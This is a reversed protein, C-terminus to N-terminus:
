FDFGFLVGFYFRWEKGYTVDVGRFKKTFEDLGYAANFFICTPFAYFSFAQLRLEAGIDKKFDNLSLKGNWANGYDGFIGFYLKDLYLPSIRTDIKTLIPFRYTLNGTLVRGGGLAYFPYGKMGPLGTAYFDYFDDVKPGFISAGRIKLSVTHTNNFLGISELWEADLKHLRNTTFITILNGDNTVEFQPNIKSIEYDYKIKIKRGIPNIELNRTAYYSEYLYSLSFTNAKFYDESSARIPIGSSPILFADIASAYKSFSYNFKFDHYFNFLKFSMGLDFELLDYTVGVNITDLGAILQGSSQRSINYGEISFKPSFSLKKSFFDKLFPVGNNYNFQFFLDREGKRNINAGGFISVRDMLEDSYFYFGPKIADLVNNDKTYNDYRIVPFFAINTFISTYPKEKFEPIKKDDFNKLSNWNYNNKSELSTSDTDAYKQILKDPRKYDAETNIAIEKFDKLMAIKYGTSKYTAYVLNGKVDVNPMFAGGVVNTIQKIEKSQLDYSYINFIGTRDSSFYLKKFDKSFVPSRTDQYSNDFLTQIDRSKIDLVSIKRSKEFSYDFYIKSGDDNFVPNYVEEGNNFKTLATREKGESDSIYLNLTGDRSVIFCISKGDPSYSPSTARFKETLRREKKTSFNYEYLDYLIIDDFSPPINRKSYIIRKGDPSWSFNSGVPFAIPEKKKTEMNYIFLGTSSFDYEQNSLFAIKKNDPSIHPYYNAFGINEIIEGDIINSKVNKLNENYENRLYTKWNNYLDIGDIGLNKRLSADMSFNTLDGLSVSIEKLKDEGYTRSIYRVFAFGSNYISEAKLSTISSFQGMENYSLMNNDMVYSRLIMDRHSDWNDYDLQQRQYQATGEAFWAPVGVGSIPYSVIVNPYGYLVDPRREKEYNLWQLYIAPVKTSLKMSAQIQIMHTFEHTIVNRLWNHTGRLDYDLPSAFISIRNNFFDTAGNSVDSVDTIIFNVKDKPEYQYLITIPGYVEEAIKAVTKASRSAETHYTITFHETEITYWDLDPYSDFQSFVKIQVIFCFIILICTRFSNIKNIM